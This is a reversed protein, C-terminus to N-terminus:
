SLRGFKQIQREVHAELGPHAEFLTETIKGIEAIVWGAQQFIRKEGPAIDAVLVGVEGMERSARYCANLILLALERDICQGNPGGDAGDEDM